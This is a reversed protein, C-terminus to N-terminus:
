WYLFMRELPLKMRAVERAAWEDTFMVLETLRTLGALHKLEDQLPSLSDPFRLSRLTTM